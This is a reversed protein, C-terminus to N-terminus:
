DLFSGFLKQWILIAQERFVTQGVGLNINTGFSYLSIVTYFIYAKQDFDATTLYFAVDDLILWVSCLLYLLTQIIGTITVRLQSQLRASSRSSKEMNRMHRRLYSITACGSALMMCVSFFFYVLRLWIDVILANTVMNTYTSNYIEPKRYLRILYSAIYVIFEELFFFKDIILASYVFLRINRKLMILFPHRAPVIQCYYFVNLWLCSTISVRMTFLLCQATFYYFSYSDTESLSNAFDSHVFLLTFFHLATNCGVLSGLLVLLPPKLRQQESVPSLCFIFFIDMFISFLSLPVNVSQFTKLSISISFSWHISHFM